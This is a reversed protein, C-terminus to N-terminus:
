LAEGKTTEPQVYVSRFGTLEYREMRGKTMGAFFIGAHNVVRHAGGCLPLTEGDTSIWRWGMGCGERNQPPFLGLARAIMPIELGNQAQIESFACNGTGHYRVRRTLRIGGHRADYKLTGDAGPAVWQGREHIGRWAASRPTTGASPGFLSKTEMCQIEGNLLRLGADWENINGVLDYIGSPTRDHSWTVPGSGTRTMGDGAPEGQEELHFYCRGGDTNGHPELGQRRCWLAIAMRLAFPMLGWGEGKVGCLAYARGFDLANHPRVMPLSAARGRILCNPYKSVWIHSLNGEGWRFAPHLAEEGCDDLLDCLRMADVRVMVSPVWLDDYLVTNRGGSLIEIGRALQDRALGSDVRLPDRLLRAVERLADGELGARRYIGYTDSLVQRFAAEGPLRGSEKM